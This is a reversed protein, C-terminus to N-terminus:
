SGVEGAGPPASVVVTLRVPAAHGDGDHEAPHLPPSSPTAETSRDPGVARDDGGDDIGRERPPAAPGGDCGACHECSEPSRLHVHYGNTPIACCRHSCDPM